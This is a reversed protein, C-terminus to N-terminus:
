KKSTGFLTITDLSVTQTDWPEVTNNCQITTKGSYKGIILQGSTPTTGTKSKTGSPIFYKTPGKIPKIEIAKGGQMDCEYTSNQYSEIQTETTKTIRGGFVQGSSAYTIDFSVFLILYLLMIYIFGKKM